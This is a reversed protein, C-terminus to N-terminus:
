RRETSAACTSASSTHFGSCGYEEKTCTKKRCAATARCRYPAGPTGHCGTASIGTKSQDGRIGSTRADHHQCGTDIDFKPFRGVHTKWNANVAASHWHSHCGPWTCWKDM